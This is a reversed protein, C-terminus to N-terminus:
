RRVRRCWARSPPLTPLAPAGDKGPANVDVKQALLARITTTDRKMAAEALRTDDAAGFGPVALLVMLSAVLLLRVM